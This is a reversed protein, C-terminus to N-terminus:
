CNLTASEIVRQITQVIAVSDASLIITDLEQPGPLKAFIAEITKTNNAQQAESQLIDNVILLQTAYLATYNAIASQNTQQAAQQINAPIVIIQNNNSATKGDSLVQSSSITQSSVSQSSDNIAMSSILNSRLDERMQNAVGVNTIALSQNM